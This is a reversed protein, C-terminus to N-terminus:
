FGPRQLHVDQNGNSPPPVPHSYRLNVVFSEGLCSAAMIKRGKQLTSAEETAENWDGFKSTAVSYTLARENM